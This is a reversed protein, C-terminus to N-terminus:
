VKRNSKFTGSEAPIVAGIDDLMSLLKKITNVRVKKFQKALIEPTAKQLEFLVTMLVVLQDEIQMPWDRKYIDKQTTIKKKSQNIVQIDASYVPIQYNPRVWMVKRQGEDIKRQQNLQVLNTIIETESLSSSWGYARAVVEDIKNHIDDLISVMGWNYISKETESLKAKARFKDRVNYMDTMTLKPFRELQSKRHSDLQEGLERLEDTIVPTLEPFPFTDFSRTKNYVTRSDRRGRNVYAWAVHIRSSLIALHASDDSAIVTLSNDPWWDGPLFQFFRHKTTELTVVYRDLNELAPRVETRERALLWWHERSFKDPNLDRDPKVTDRLHQYVAPFRKRVENETLSLMNILYLNRNHQALDRGNRYPKIHSDLGTVSNMGLDIAKEKTVKFGEGSTLLGPSSIGKNATLVTALNVNTGITLNSHIKGLESVLELKKGNKGPEQNKNEGKITALRGKSKGAVGVTMAIRVNASDIEDVWPHDAIAFQISIPAENKQLHKDVVRLNFKQSISDTTILGFRNIEGNSLKQASKDWWYMVFDTSKAIHPYAKVLAESYGEGLKTRRVLGGIFPPNGVIFDADPWEAPRPNIFKFDETQADPETVKKSKIEDPSSYHLKSRSNKKSQRVNKPVKEDCVLIADRHEINHFDRMIPETPTIKKLIHSHQRLYGIWLVLEAVSAAWRSKEIGLFQNPSVVQGMLGLKKRSDGLEELLATVEGELKQMHEFTVYLFNGSGCAPDLVRVECLKKHYKRVVKLAQKSDGKKMHQNVIALVAVWDMRLPDIVTPIVLQEVYARPTYHAGLEGREVKDLARELLTGFIAPEVDKWSFESAHILLDMQEQNLKLAKTDKFLGGNFKRMDRHIAMSFNGTNMAQWIENLILHVNKSDPRMDKLTNSFRQGPILDVGEAFMSFVFRMLFDVVDKPAHGQGELSRGLTALQDAIEKTVQIQQLESNLSHPNTWITRLRERIEPKQLDNLHIRFNEPDPFQMYHHGKGSFDAYVDFRHGIDCVILFPVWGDEVAIARAYRDAQGRAKVMAQDYQPRGRIGHGVRIVQNKASTPAATKTSTLVNDKNVGQKTEIIFCGQKYLDIFHQKQEGFSDSKIPRDFRYDDNASTKVVPKPKEVELVDCLETLFPIANAREGGGADSWKAIFNDVIVM